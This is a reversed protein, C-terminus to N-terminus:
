DAAVRLMGAYVGPSSDQIVTAGVTKAYFEVPGVGGIAAYGYGQNWMDHLCAILLAKGTGRGRAVESVGTPGFFGKRTTDYCGFGILNNGESALFCSVPQHSFAVDNESVWYESFHQRLWANVIHKEPAIGRRIEIGQALQQDLVPQLLPLEYLRVLMDM